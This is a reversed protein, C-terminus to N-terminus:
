GVWVVLNDDRCLMQMVVQSGGCIRGVVTGAEFDVKEVCIDRLLDLGKRGAYKYLTEKACWLAACLRSDDSLLREAPSVYRSSINSFNRSLREIDVACRRESIVVAVFDACHSVGIYETRNELRPAGEATYGIAVDRGLARRVMDRWMLYEGSRRESGFSAAHRREDDTVWLEPWRERAPVPEIILKAEPM